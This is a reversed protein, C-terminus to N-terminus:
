IMTAMADVLVEKRIELEIISEALDKSRLVSAIDQYKEKAMLKMLESQRNKLKELKRLLKEM